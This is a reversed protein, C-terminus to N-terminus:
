KGSKIAAMAKKAAEAVKKGAGLDAAKKFEALAEKKKGQDKYLQGLYFHPEALKDDLKLAAEYDAKEGDADKMGHRCRGRLVHLGAVDKAQIAKDLAGVCDSFKHMRAYLDGMAALLKPDDSVVQKLQTAAQDAQGAAALNEAYAFRLEMNKPQAAVADAYAKVAGAKDGAAETALALNMLLGPDKPANQLGAKVVKVAEAAQNMDLLLASLNMSAQVLKPDLSLAQQYLDAASKKDGLGEDAVGLYFAAQPDKPNETHAQTLVEKAKAFDKAEIADMGQKVKPSSAPTVQGGGGGSAPQMGNDDLPPPNDASKAPPPSGCGAALALLVVPLLVAGFLAPIRRARPPRLSTSESEIAKM